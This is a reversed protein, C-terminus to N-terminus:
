SPPTRGDREAIAATLNDRVTGTISHEEGLVRLADTFIQEYLPIARRLDGTSAYIGALNNRSTLTTPHTEGLVRVMGELAQEHLPIARELDGASSYAGALNNRSTLAAPHDPGLLRIRDKLTQEHLAIARKLDGATEYALALNNRSTLTHPHDPGLLRIRDKLTQEHLPIARELDGASQYAYALNNRSSLTDPHKRGLVRVTAKLNQEYLSIAHDLDGASRYAYALSNRCALTDPHKRGLLREQATLCRRLYGNAQNSLGQVTLFLGAGHFIRVTAVTDTDVSTHDALAEIHSLLARWVRQSGPDESSAPLATNLNAIAQERAQGIQHSARHLDSSDPTRALAQVLRHVALTGTALDPTIMSYATLLGLAEDRVLPDALDALATPIHDPAYWALTRLLDAAAPQLQTIRDLTINWIRAITREADTIVAGNRYMAAPDEALLRLYTRPTTLPNQALYAAAQDIALPLHGLEDCLDATGDMDRGPHQATATRTLLALSEDPELVDLRVLTAADNWVTTLRSTLLFRGTRARAILPAIDSPNDVNDLVILWGTHSALWQLGWEALAETTLAKALVPRLAIALEALGQQIATPTDATIWRIPAHGHPRTAAWHAALASKGIGGLGHVAQVLATGPTALAADLQDLEQGRGVFLEPRHPLPM